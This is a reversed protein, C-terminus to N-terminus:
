LHPNQNSKSSIKPINKAEMNNLKKHYILYRNMALSEIASIAVEILIYVIYLVLNHHCPRITHGMNDCLDLFIDNKKSKATIFDGHEDWNRYGTELFISNRCVIEINRFEFIGYDENKHQRCKSDLVLSM